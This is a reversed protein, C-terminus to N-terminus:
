SLDQPQSIKGSLWAIDQHTDNEEIGLLIVLGQGENRKQCGPQHPHQRRTVKQVVARM